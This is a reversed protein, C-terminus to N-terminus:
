EEFPIERIQFVVYIVLTNGLSDTCTAAVRYDEGVTGAAIRAQVITGSRNVATITLNTSGAIRGLKAVQSVSEGGSLTNSGLMDAYQFDYLLSGLPSKVVYTEIPDSM